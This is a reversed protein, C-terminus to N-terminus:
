NGSTPMRVPTDANAIDVRLDEPPVKGTYINEHLLEPTPRGIGRTKELAVLGAYRSDLGRSYNLGRM